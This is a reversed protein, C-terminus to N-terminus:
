VNSDWRSADLRGSEEMKYNSDHPGSIAVPSTAMAVALAVEPVSVLDGVKNANIAESVATELEEVSVTQTLMYEAPHQDYKLVKAVREAPGMQENTAQAAEGAKARRHHETLARSAEDDDEYMAISHNGTEFIIEYFPM